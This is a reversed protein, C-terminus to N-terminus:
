KVHVDRRKSAVNLTAGGGSASYNSYNINRILRKRTIYSVAVWAGSLLAVSLVVAVEISM